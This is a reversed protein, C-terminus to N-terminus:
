LLANSKTGGMWLFADRVQFIFDAVIDFGDRGDKTCNTLLPLHTYHEPCVPPVNHHVTNHRSGTEPYNAETLDEGVSPQLRGEGASDGSPDSKPLQHPGAGAKIVTPILFRRRITYYRIFVCQDYEEPIASGTASSEGSNSDNRITPIQYPGCNTHVLEETRWSGWLSVSTSAVAPVAASFECGVRTRADSYAFAAFEQTLDVGTVLVPRIDDGHGHELSFDVWSQYHKKIYNKYILEREIDERYTPRKTILGAGRKSTLEFAIKAGPEVPSAREILRHNGALDFDAYAGLLPWPVALTWASRDLQKQACTDPPDCKAQYSLVSM